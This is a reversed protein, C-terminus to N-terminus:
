LLCPRLRPTINSGDLCKFSYYQTRLLFVRIFSSVRPMIQVIHSHLRIKVSKELAYAKM